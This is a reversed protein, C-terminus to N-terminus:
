AHSRGVLEARVEDNHQGLTSSPPPDGPQTKSYVAPLRPEVVRGLVPHQSEVFLRRAIVQENAPIQAPELVEAFMAGAARLKAGTEALPLSAARTRFQKLVAEYGRRDAERGCTTLLQPRANLDVEFV